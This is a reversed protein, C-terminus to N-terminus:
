ENMGGAFQPRPAIDSEDFGEAPTLRLVFLVRGPVRDRDIWGEYDTDDDSRYSWSGSEWGQLQEKLVTEDKALETIDVVVKTERDLRIKKLHDWLMDNLEDDWWVLDVDSLKAVNRHFDAIGSNVVSSKDQGFMTQREPLQLRNFFDVMAELSIGAMM